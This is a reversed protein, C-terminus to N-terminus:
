KLEMCVLTEMHKTHPFFDFAEVNKINYNKTLEELDRALTLPNCSVYIINKVGSKAVSAEAKIHLGGRPPDLIILSNYASIKQNHLFDETKACIFNVNEINNLKANTRGDIVAQEVSEVCFFKQAADTCILSFSGAGGYLDYVTAPQIKKVLDRASQYM